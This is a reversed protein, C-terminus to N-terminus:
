VKRTFNFLDLFDNPAWYQRDVGPPLNLEDVITIQPDQKSEEQPIAGCYVLLVTIRLSEHPDTLLNLFTRNRFINRRSRYSLEFEREPLLAGNAISQEAWEYPVRWAGSAIAGTVFLSKNELRPVIVHTIPCNPAVVEHKTDTAPGQVKCKIGMDRFGQVMKKIVPEKPNRAVIRVNIPSEPNTNAESSLFDVREKYDPRRNSRTRMQFTPVVPVAQDKTTEKPLRQRKAPPPELEADKAKEAAEAQKPKAPRGKKTSAGSPNARKKSTSAAPAASGASVVSMSSTSLSNPIPNSKRLHIVTRSKKPPENVQPALFPKFRVLVPSPLVYNPTGHGLPSSSNLGEFSGSELSTGLQKTMSEIMAISFQCNEGVILDENDDQGEMANNHAEPGNMMEVSM